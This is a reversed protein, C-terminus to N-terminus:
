GGIWQWLLNHLNFVKVVSLLIVVILLRHAWLNAQPSKAAYLATLYGGATQGIAMLLGMRWDILGQVHFILLAIGTYLGVVVVKVANSDILSYRASLVMVALFFVGMGMQIFGGYFGLALFMPISLWLSPQYELDTQRLWREPKVLVVFLMLVLLFRFARKFNDPSIQTAVIIGIIAGITTFAIFGWSRQVNLKGHRYFAWSSAVSQTFIGVRNTGNAINPSLGLVEMLITLTITSGNGAMTNIAGALFSGVIAIIYHWIEM